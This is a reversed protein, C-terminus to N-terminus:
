RCACIEPLQVTFTTGIGEASAVDLKGGHQKVIQHVSALGLGMGRVNAPVNGGRYFPEFIHPLDTPPIGLGQDRVKLTVWGAAEHPEHAVVMGIEGGDPSYKIANSLLNVLLREIRERDVAAVVQPRNAEVRLVHRKLLTQHQTVVDRVLGVLEVPGCRLAHTQGAQLVAVDTLEAVMRSMKHGARGIQAVAEEIVAESLGRRQVFQQLVGAYIQMTQMPSRLDHTVVALVDDRTRVAQVSERYLQANTVATAICKGIEEVLALDDANWAHGYHSAVCVVLGHVHEGAVIPAAILAAPRPVALAHLQDATGVLEVLDAETVHEMFVSTPTRLLRALPHQEWCPDFPNARLDAPLLAAEADRADGSLQLQQSPTRLYFECHDAFSCRILAALQPLTTEYSLSAALITSAEALLAFRQQAREAAARAIRERELLQERERMMRQREAIEGRLEIETIVMSTLDRLTEIEDARWSRPVSDIACLTGIVFGDSTVLPIGAYAVVELDAIALNTHVLPHERADEVIFPEGTAVTYQCFSHSLPTQRRSAWPELLGVCSKFFQRDEDVLSVLATPVGLVKTALRTLRDFAPDVASDLLALDRLAALRAPDCIVTEVHSVM